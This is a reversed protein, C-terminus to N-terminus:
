CLCSLDLKRKLIYIKEDIYIHPNEEAFWAAVLGFIYKATLSFKNFVASADSVIRKLYICM